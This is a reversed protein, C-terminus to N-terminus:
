GVRITDGAYIVNPNNINNWIVLQNVTTGFKAAIGSLTDGNKITYYKAKNAGLIENVRNQVETYNYGAAELRNKRDQGNGWEGNIVQRAIEDVPKKIPETEELDEAINMDVNGSIGPVKGVSTYQWIDYKVPPKKSPVNGNNVGYQAIWVSDCSVSALGKSQYFSTSAYIGVKLGAQRIRNVFGQAAEKTNQSEELDYYIPLEFVKNGMYSLCNEAEKVGADYNTAYAYYYAGLPKKGHFGNYHNDFEKDKQSAPLYQVGYGVRIIAFDINKAVENYNVNKQWTSIDIGKKM